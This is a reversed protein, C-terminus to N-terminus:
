SRGSSTGSDSNRAAAQAGGHAPYFIYMPVGSRGQESLAATIAEDRRTWDARMLTVNGQAFADKIESRGLVAKENVKCTWCWDATFDVFVPKGAKRLRDLEAADWAMWGDGPDSREPLDSPRLAKPLAWAGSLWCSSPM